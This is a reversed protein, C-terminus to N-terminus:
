NIDCPFDPRTDMSVSPSTLCPAYSASFHREFHGSSILDRVDQPLYEPLWLGYQLETFNDGFPDAAFPNIFSCEYEHKEWITNRYSDIVTQLGFHVHPASSVADKKGIEAVWDGTSFAVCSETRVPPDEADIHGFQWLMGVDTLTAYVNTVYGSNEGYPFWIQNIIMEGDAIAYIPTGVGNPYDDSSYVLDWGRHDENFGGFVNTDLGNEGFIWRLFPVVQYELLSIEQANNGIQRTNSSVTL